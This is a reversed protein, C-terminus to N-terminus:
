AYMNGRIGYFGFRHKSSLDFTRDIKRVRYFDRLFTSSLCFDITRSISKENNKSTPAGFFHCFDCKGAAGQLAQYHVFEVRQCKMVNSTNFIWERENIYLFIACARERNHCCTTPVGCYAGVYGVDEFATVIEKAPCKQVNELIVIPPQKLKTPELTAMFTTCSRGKNHLGKPMTSLSSFDVCETSNKLFKDDLLISLLCEIGNKQLTTLKLDSREISM